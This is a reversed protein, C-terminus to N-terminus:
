LFSVGLKKLLQHYFDKKDFNQLEELGFSTFHYSLSPAMFFITSFCSYVHSFEGAAIDDELFINKRKYVPLNCFGFDRTKAKPHPAVFVDTIGKNQWDQELQSYIRKLQEKNLYQRDFLSQEVLIAKKASKKAGGMVLPFYEVQYEKYEHPFNIPLYINKILDDNGYKADLGIWEGEFPIYSNTLFSKLKQVSKKQATLYHNSANLFGDPLLRIIGKPFIQKYQYAIWNWQDSYIEHLWIEKPQYRRLFIAVQEQAQKRQKNIPSYRAIGRPWANIQKVSSFCNLSEIQQYLEKNSTCVVAKQMTNELIHVASFLAFSSDTFITIM